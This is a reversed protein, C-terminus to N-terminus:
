SHVDEPQTGCIDRTGHVLVRITDRLPMAQSRQVCVMCVVHCIGLPLKYRAVHRCDLFREDTILSGGNRHCEGSRTASKGFRGKKAACGQGAM